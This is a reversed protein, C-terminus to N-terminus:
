IVFIEQSCFFTEHKDFKSNYVSYLKYQITSHISIEATSLTMCICVCILFM